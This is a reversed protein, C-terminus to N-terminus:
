GVRRAHVYNRAWYTNDLTSVMVRGQGSSAHVFEGGGLYIGCHGIYSSTDSRFFLIDGRRLSATGYVKAWASHTSYAAASYRPVSYGAGNVAYHVLGSCDFRSPGEDGLVYPKGSQALAIDGIKAASSLAAQAANSAFAKIRTAPGAVGDASLGSMQQFAKVASQTVSGYYGTARGYTYFGLQTLRSQLASVAEGSDGVRLVLAKASSAYLNAQTASGAIGDASLGHNKQFRLVATQTVAGYYGTAGSYDLYGLAHLKTQLKTVESGRSGTKLAASSAGGASGFLATQTQNGAIGDATLGSDKQYNTVASQTMWGYYGTPAVGLYGRDVLAQQVETVDQGTSGYRLAKYGAAAATTAFGILVVAALLPAIIRRMWKQKKSTQKM